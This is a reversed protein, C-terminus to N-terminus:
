RRRAASIRRPLAPVLPAEDGAVSLAFAEEVRWREFTQGSHGHRVAVAFWCRGDKSGEIAFQDPLLKMLM